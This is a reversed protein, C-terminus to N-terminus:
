VDALRLEPFNFSESMLAVIRMTEKFAIAIPATAAAVAIAVAVVLRKTLSLKM